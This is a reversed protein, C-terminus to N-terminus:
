KISEFLQTPNDSLPQLKRAKKVKTTLKVSFVYPLGSLHECKPVTRVSLYSPFHGKM